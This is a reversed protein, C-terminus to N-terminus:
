QRCGESDANDQVKHMQHEAPNVKEPPYLLTRLKNLSVEPCTECEEAKHGGEEIVVECPLIVVVADVVLVVLAPKRISRSAAVKILRRVKIYVRSVRCSGLQSLSIFTNWCTCERFNTLDSFHDAQALRVVALM